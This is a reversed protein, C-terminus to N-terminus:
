QLSLIIRDLKGIISCHTLISPLHLAFATFMFLGGFFCSICYWSFFTPIAMGILALMGVSNFVLACSCAGRCSQAEALGMSRSCCRQIVGAAHFNPISLFFSLLGFFALVKLINAAIIIRDVLHPFEARAQAAQRARSEAETRARAEAARM